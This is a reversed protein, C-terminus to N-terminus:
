PHRRVGNIYIPACQTLEAIEEETEAGADIATQRLTAAANRGMAEMFDMVEKQTM